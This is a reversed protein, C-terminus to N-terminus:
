VFWRRSIYLAAEVILFNKKKKMIRAKCKRDLYVIKLFDGSFTETISNYEENTKVFGIYHM